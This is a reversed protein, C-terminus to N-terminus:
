QGPGGAGGGFGGGGGGPGGRGGRGGGGGGGGGNQMREMFSQIDADTAGAGKLIEIKEEPSASRFKARDEESLKQMIAGM